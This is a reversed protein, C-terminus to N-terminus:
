EHADERGSRSERAHPALIAPRVPEPSIRANAVLLAPLVWFMTGFQPSAEMVFDVFGHVLTAAVAGLVGFGLAQGIFDPASRMQRRGERVVLFLLVFFASFGLLGTESLLHLYLNHVGATGAALSPIYYGYLDQFNGLGVGYFPSGLFLNWAVGWLSLRFAVQGDSVGGLREPSVVKGVLYFSLALMALGGLLLVRNPWGEAFRFIALVIVCAFAVLGGRSQTCALAVAGLLLTWGGLTKWAKTGRLSCALAFPLLLNLYAALFNPHYLFSFARYDWPYYGGAEPPNLALWLSTYGGVIEQFIAFGGVVITSALLTLLVARLRERTNVWALVTLYFGVYSVFRFLTRVSEHTWGGTGLLVSVLAVGMFLLSAWTIPIRLLKRLETRRRFLRGLFFGAVVLLRATTAVDRIALDQPLVWGVPVLFVVWLLFPENELASLVLVAVAGVLAISWHAFIFLAAAGAGVVGLALAAKYGRFANPPEGSVPPGPSRPLYHQTNNAMAHANRLLDPPPPQNQNVM